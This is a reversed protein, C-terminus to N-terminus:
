SKEEQAAARLRAITDSALREKDSPGYAAQSGADNLGLRVLKILCSSYSLEGTVSIHRIEKDMDHPIRLARLVSKKNRASSKM